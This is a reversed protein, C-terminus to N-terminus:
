YLRRKSLYDQLVASADVPSKFEELARERIESYHKYLVNVTYDRVFDPVVTGKCSAIFGNVFCVSLCCGIHFVNRSVPSADLNIILTNDPKREVSMLEVKVGVFITNDYDNILWERLM